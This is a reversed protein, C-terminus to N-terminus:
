GGCCVSLNLRTLSFAKSVPWFCFKNRLKKTTWILEVLNSDIHKLVIFIQCYSQLILGLPVPPLTLNKSIVESKSFKEVPFRTVKGLILHILVFLFNRCECRPDRSMVMNLSRANYFSCFKVFIRMVKLM